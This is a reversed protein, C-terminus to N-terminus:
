PFPHLRHYPSFYVNYMLRKNVRGVYVHVLRLEHYPAEEHWGTDKREKKMRRPNAKSHCYVDRRVRRQKRSIVCLCSRDLRAGSPRSASWVSRLLLAVAKIRVAPAKVGALRTFTASWGESPHVIGRSMLRVFRAVSTTFAIIVLTGNRHTLKVNGTGQVLTGKIGENVRHWPSSPLNIIRRAEGSIRFLSHNILLLSWLQLALISYQPLHNEINPLM